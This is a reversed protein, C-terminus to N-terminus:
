GLNEWVHLNLKQMVTIPEHKTKVAETLQSSILCIRELIPLQMNEASKPDLRSDFLDECEMQKLFQGPEIDKM